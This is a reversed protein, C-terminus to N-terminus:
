NIADSDLLKTAIADADISYSGDEIAQRIANVRNTDVDSASGVTSELRSLSHGAASLNVSDASAGAEASAPTAKTHGDAPEQLKTSGGLTNSNIGNNNVLM